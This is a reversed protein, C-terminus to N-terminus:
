MALTGGPTDLLIYIKEQVLTDANIYILFRKEDVTGEFEYVLVESKSDTPIICLRENEIKIDKKIKERAEKITKQPMVVRERHNYIYGNAEITMIEGNDLAVKVKILDPYMVIENEYAAFSITVMNDSKLYYTPIINDIGLKSLFEKAYKKAEDIEINESEVKRDSIMQYIRGDQKTALITKTTDSEKMKVEYEYLPIKGSQESKYEISEINIKNKLIELVEDETLIKGTLFAPEMTLIHNSFAGDYIIGEYETFTKDIYEVNSIESEANAEKIKEDGIKELEDWKIKGSNLSTYIEDTVKSLESIKTYLTNINDKYKEITEGNLNERMLSYSFDSLQSLFRSVNSISNASFPLNDLNAKASNSKAFISALTTMTYTDNTSIKFKLLENEVNNINAVFDYMAKNYGDQVEQKEIKFKKLLTMMFFVIICVLAFFIIGIKKPGLKSKIRIIWKEFKDLM